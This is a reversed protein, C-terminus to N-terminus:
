LAESELYLDAPLSIQAFCRSVPKMTPVPAVGEFFVLLNKETGKRVLIFTKDGLGNVCPKPLKVKVWDIGDDAMDVPLSSIRPMSSLSISFPDAYKPILVKYSGLEAAAAPLMAVIFLSVLVWVRM